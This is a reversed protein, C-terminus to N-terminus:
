FPTGTGLLTYRYQVRYKSSSKIQILSVLWTSSRGPITKMFFFMVKPFTCGAVHSVFRSTPYVDTTIHRRQAFPKWRLDICIFNFLFSLSHAQAQGKGDYSLFYFFSFYYPKWRLTFFIFIFIFIFICVFTGASPRKWRLDFFLFFTDRSVEQEPCSFFFTSWRLSHLERGALLFFLLFNCLYFLCIPEM